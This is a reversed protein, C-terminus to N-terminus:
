KHGGQEAFLLEGAANFRMGRPYSLRAESAPLTDTSSDLEGAVGAVTTVTNNPWLRRIQLPCLPASPKHPSRHSPRM